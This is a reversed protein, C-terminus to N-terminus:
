HHFDPDLPDEYFLKNMYTQDNLEEESPRWHRYFEEFGIPDRLKWDFNNSPLLGIFDFEHPNDLDYGLSLLQNMLDPNNPFPVDSYDDRSNKDRNWGAVCNSIRSTNSHLRKNCLKKM